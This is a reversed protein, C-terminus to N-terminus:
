PLLATHECGLDARDFVLDIDPPDDPNSRHRVESLQGHRQSFWDEWIQVADVSWLVEKREKEKLGSAALRQSLERLPTDYTVPFSSIAM